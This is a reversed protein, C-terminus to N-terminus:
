RNLPLFEVKGLGMFMAYVRIIAMNGPKLLVNWLITQEEDIDLVPPLGKTLSKSLFNRLIDLKWFKVVRLRNFFGGLIVDLTPEDTPSSDDPSERDQDTSIYM